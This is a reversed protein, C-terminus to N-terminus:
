KSVTIVSTNPVFATTFLNSPAERNNEEQEKKLAASLTGSNVTGVILEGLGAQRLWEYAAEKQDPVISARFTSSVGVRFGEDLAVHPVGSQEFLAPITEKRYQEFLTSYPKLLEDMKAMMRHYVVFARALKVPNKSSKALEREVKKFEKELATLHKVVLHASPLASVISKPLPAKAGTPKAM